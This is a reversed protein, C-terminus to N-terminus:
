KRFKAGSQKQEANKAQAAAETAKDQWIVVQDRASQADPADPVLELYARMHEVAVGYSHLEAAVLAANFRGEPWVPYLELGREYHYLAKELKREKFATEALLRQGRVEEPVPPKQPLARWADAAQPLNRLAMGQAGTMDRLHNLANAFLEATGADYWMLHDFPEPLDKGAEDKVRYLGGFGKKSFVQPLDNLEVKQDRYDKHGFPVIIKASFQFSDFAFKFSSPNDVTALPCSQFGAAVANRARWLTMPSAAADSSAESAPAAAAAPERKKVLRQASALCPLILLCIGVLIAPATLKRIVLAM